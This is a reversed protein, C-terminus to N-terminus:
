QEYDDNLDKITVRIRKILGKMKEYKGISGEINEFDIIDSVGVSWNSGVPITEYPSVSKILPTGSLTQISTNLPTAPTAPTAFEHNTSSPQCQPTSPDDLPPTKDNPEPSDCTSSNITDDNATTELALIDDILSDDVPATNLTEDAVSTTSANLAALLDDQQKRLEDLSPSPPSNEPINPTPSAPSESVGPPPPDDEIEEGDELDMEQQNLDVVRSELNAIPAVFKPKAKSKSQSRLTQLMLDKSQNPNMQPMRLNYSM